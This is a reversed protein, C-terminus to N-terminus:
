VAAAVRRFTLSTRVGRRVIDEDDLDGALHKNLCLGYDGVRQTTAAAEVAAAAATVTATSAAAATTFSQQECPAIGHMYQTYLDEAFFLLSRPQLVVSIEDGGFLEGIEHSRLNPRFSM